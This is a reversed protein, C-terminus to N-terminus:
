AELLDSKLALESREPIQEIVDQCDGLISIACCKQAVQGTRLGSCPLINERM